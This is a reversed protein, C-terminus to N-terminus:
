HSPSSFFSDVLREQQPLLVFVRSYMSNYLRAASERALQVAVARRSEEM